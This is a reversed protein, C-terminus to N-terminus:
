AAERKCARCAGSKGKFAGCSSCRRTLGSRLAHKINASPSVYELNSEANNRKDGDRHNVQLGRPCPGLFAEAVLRHVWANRLCCEVSLVLRLYGNSDLHQRIERGVRAGKSPKNRFVRGDDSVVYAGDLIPKRM